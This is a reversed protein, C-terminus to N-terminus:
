WNRWWNPWGGNRWGPAWWGGNRWGPGWWAGNRWGPGWGWNRWGPGRWGWWNGWALRQEGAGGVAPSLDSVADRIAALRESVDATESAASPAGAPPQNADASAASGLLLSVGIAGAPFLESFIKVYKQRLSM